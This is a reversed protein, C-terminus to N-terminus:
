WTIPMLVPLEGGTTYPATNNYNITYSITSNYVVNLSTSITGPTASAAITTTLPNATALSTTAGLTLTGTGSLVGANLNLFTQVALNTNLQVGGGTNNITLQWICNSLSGTWSGSGSIIQPTASTGAMVLNDANIGTASASPATNINGNNTINGKANLTTTGGTIASTMMDLIGTSGTYINGSVNLTIVPSVGGGTVFMSGSTVSIDGGVNITTTQTGNPDFYFNGGQVDVNGTVTVTMGATITSTSIGLWGTGSSIETINAITYTTNETTYIPVGIAGSQNPCNWTINGFNIQPFTLATSTVGTVYITSTTTYTATPIAGGNVTLNYFSGAAFTLSAASGTVTGGNNSIAGTVSVGNSTLVNTIFTGGTNVNLTGAILGAQSLTTAYTLTLNTSLSLTTGTNVQLNNTATAGAIILSYAASAVLTVNTGSNNIILQGVTVASALNVSASSNFQATVGSGPVTAPSWNGATNWNGDGANGTWVTQANACRMGALVMALVVLLTKPNLTFSRYTM